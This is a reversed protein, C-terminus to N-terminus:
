RTWVLRFYCKKEVYATTEPLRSLTYINNSYSIKKGNGIGSVGKRFGKGNKPPFQVGLWKSLTQSLRKVIKTAYLKKSLIFLKRYLWKYLILFLGRYLTYTGCLSHINQYTELASQYQDAERRNGWKTKSFMVAKLTGIHTYVITLYIM